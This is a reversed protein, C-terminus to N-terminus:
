YNLTSVNRAVNVPPARVPAPPVTVTTAVFAAPPPPPPPLPQPAPTEDKKQKRGRLKKSKGKGGDNAAAENPASESCADATSESNAARKRGHQQEPQAPRVSAHDHSTKDCGSAKGDNISVVVPEQKVHDVKHCEAAPVQHHRKKLPLLLKVDAAAVPSSAAAEVQDGRAAADASGACVGGNGHDQELLAASRKSRNKRKGILM